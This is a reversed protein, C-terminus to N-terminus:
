KLLGRESFSMYREGSCVIHDVINVGIDSLMKKLKQTILTDNSSPDPLGKPHNHAIIMAVANTLLAGQMITRIDSYTSTLGGESVIKYGLVHNAQNLYLVKFTETYDITNDDHLKRLIRYADKADTIKTRQNYPVSNRYSLAVEAVNFNTKM